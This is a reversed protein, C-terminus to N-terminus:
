PVIKFVVGCGSGGYCQNMGGGAATGYLNGSSDFILSAQPGDGHIQDFDHLESYTWGGGSRALRFVTGHLWRGGGATVGYLNGGADLTPAAPVGGYYRGLQYIVSFNWGDGSPALEFVTGAENQGARITGGYLNGSAGDWVVGSYPWAGDSGDQFSYLIRETWGSGSPSLEFVTGFGYQGGLWSTGYLNGSSDRSLGTPSNVDNGGQFDYLISEQWGGDVPRLEYVTGCECRSDGGGGTIGYINGASDFFFAGPGCGDQRGGYAGGFQYLVNEFWQGGERVLKYVVGCGYFGGGATGYPLGDPGIVISTGPNVGPGGFPNYNFPSFSVLTTLNWGSGSDSLYFVTGFVTGFQESGTHTTGFFSGDGALTLATTPEGGDPGGTFYHLVQYDQAETLQGLIITILVAGFVLIRRRFYSM